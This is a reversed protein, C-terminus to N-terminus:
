QQPGKAEMKGRLYAGVGDLIIEAVRQRIVDERPDVPTGRREAELWCEDRVIKELEPIESRIFESEPSM